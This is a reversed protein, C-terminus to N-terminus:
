FEEDDKVEECCDCQPGCPEVGQCALCDCYGLDPVWERIKDKLYDKIKNIM